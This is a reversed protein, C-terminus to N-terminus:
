QCAHVSEGKSVAQAETAALRGLSERLAKRQIPKSIYANAGVALYRAEDGAMANATVIIVPTRGAAGPLQRIRRTAEVGDMEPMQVDMLVADFRGQQLAEVAARGNDVLLCDHGDQKLLTEILLQNTPVDEAALVRLKPTRASVQTIVAEEPTAVLRLPVSFTFTTGKGLRSQMSIEGGMLTVLRRSIALGLGTGGFRRRISCDAQVFM